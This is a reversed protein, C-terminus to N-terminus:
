PVRKEVTDSYPGFDTSGGNAQVRVFVDTGSPLGDLVTMSRGIKGKTYQKVVSKDPNNIDTFVQVTFNRANKMPKWGAKLEGINNSFALRVGTVKPLEGAPSGKTDKAEYGTTLYLALDGNAIRACDIAQATLMDELEARKQEKFATDARNGDDAAVLADEYEKNKADVDATAPVVAAFAPAKNIKESKDQAYEVLASDNINILGLKPIIQKM